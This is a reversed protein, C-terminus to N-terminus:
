KSGYKYEHSFLKTIKVAMLACREVDHQEIIDIAGLAALFGYTIKWADGIPDKIEPENTFHTCLTSMLYRNILIELLDEKEKPTMNITYAANFEWLLKDYLNDAFDITDQSM